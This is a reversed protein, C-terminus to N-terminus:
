VREYDIDVILPYHDSLGEFEKDFFSKMAKVRHHSRTNNIVFLRDVDKDQPVAEDITYHYGQSILYTFNTYINAMDWVNNPSSNFDGLIIIPNDSDKDSIYQVLQQLQSKRAAVDKEVNPCSEANYFDADLHVVYIDLELERDITVSYYRFGKKILKDNAHTFYGYSKKWRVIDMANVKVRRSALLCLGDAKIRPYPLWSVSSFLKKIDIGGMFGHSGMPLSSFLDDHYNFDEQVAIADAHLDALMASMQKMMEKKNGNDNIPVITTKKLIKYVWTIPRLPWPLERLDVSEPLGDINYTVLRIM